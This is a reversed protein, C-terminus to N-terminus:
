NKCALWPRKWRNMGYAPIFKPWFSRLTQNAFTLVYFGAFCSRHLEMIRWDFSFPQLYFAIILVFPLTLLVRNTLNRYVYDGGNIEGSKPQQPEQSYFKNYEGSSVLLFQPRRISGLMKSGMPGPNVVVVQDGVLVTKRKGPRYSIFLAIRRNGLDQVGEARM